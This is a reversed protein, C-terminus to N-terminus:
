AELLHYNELNSTEGSLSPFGRCAALFDSDRPPPGTRPGRGLSAGFQEVTRNELVIRAELKALRLRSPPIKAALQIALSSFEYDSTSFCLGEIHKQKQLKRM